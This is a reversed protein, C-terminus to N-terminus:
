IVERRYLMQETFGSPSPGPVIMSTTNITSAGSFTVQGGIVQGQMTTSAGSFNIQCPSYYLTRLTATISSAGSLSIGSACPPSSLINFLLYFNYPSSSTISTAGSMSLPGNSVIALNGKVNIVTAGSISLTCNSNIRVVYSGSSIGQIFALANTCANPDNFTQITYGTWNSPTYTFAVSSWPVSGPLAANCNSIKSGNVTPGPASGTCYYANGQIVSAGTEIIDATSSRANGRIVSAGSINLRLRSTV